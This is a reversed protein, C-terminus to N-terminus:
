AQKKISYVVMRRKALEDFYRRPPVCNEAALVGRKKIEGTALMQAVISPPIGTRLAGSGVGWDKIDSGCGMEMTIETKVGGSSGTVYVRIMGFDNPTSGDKPLRSYLTTLYERPSISAGSVSLEEMEAFGLGVLLRINDALKKPLAIKFSVEKIGKEKFSLPFTYTESHISYIFSAKGIPEPFIIEEEGSLPEAMIWDGNTFVPPPASFEDLITSIHYPLSLARKSDKKFSVAAFRVHISDVTDLQDAAFKAMVNTTGPSSGMGSIATLGKGKWKSDLELQKKTVWFLGGLDLYHTATRLASEMVRLNYDHHLCNVVVDADQLLPDISASVTADAKIVSVRKDNLSKALEQANNGNADAIVINSVGSSEVLDMATIRGMAGAGGILVIKM